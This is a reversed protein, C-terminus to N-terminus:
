RFHEKLLSNGKKLNDLEEELAYVDLNTLRYLQLDLIATAQKESFGFENMLNIKADAKNKSARIVRIVEDLISLAKVLGETIHLKEILLIM